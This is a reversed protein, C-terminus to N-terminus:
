KWFGVRCSNELDSSGLKTRIGIVLGLINVMAAITPVVAFMAYLATGAALVPMEGLLAERAARLWHAVWADSTDVWALSRKIHQVPVLHSPVPVRLDLFALAVFDGRFSRNFRPPQPRRLWSSM